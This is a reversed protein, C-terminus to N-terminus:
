SPWLILFHSLEKKGLIECSDKGASIVPVTVLSLHTVVKYSLNVAASPKQPESCDEERLLKLFYFWLAAFSYPSHLCYAM